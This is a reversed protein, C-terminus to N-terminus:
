VEGQMCAKQIALSAIRNAAQRQVHVQTSVDRMLVQPHDAWIFGNHYSGNGLSQHTPRPVLVCGASFSQTTIRTRHRLRNCGHEQKVDSSALLEDCTRHKWGRYCTIADGLRANSPGAISQRRPSLIEPLSSLRFLQTSSSVAQNGTDTVTLGAQANYVWTM